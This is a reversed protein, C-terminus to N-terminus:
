EEKVIILKVKDGHHFYALPETYIRYQQYDLSFYIEGDVANEMMKEKQWQAGAKFTKILCEECPCTPNEGDAYECAAEELDDITDNSVVDDKHAETFLKSKEKVEQMAAEIDAPTRKIPQELSDIFNELLSLGDFIGQDYQSKFNSNEDLMSSQLRDIETKIKEIKNM